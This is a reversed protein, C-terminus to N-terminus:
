EGVVSNKLMGLSDIEVETVDGPKLYVPPKLAHGIGPPTGTFVLDGPELTFIISLYSVLQAVSFIMQETSSDQMTKGNLRLRIGLKHPDPVEDRTVLTPGVPAFTDFTKGVMWQRGDKELQWDRASVDHGVSYGAVHDLARAEPIRRGAKGIVIVLEAEYDVKTSVSPVVIPGGHGILATPFKSFLVPEKPIAMGSEAAHDRYNLGVCVIKQPDPVPAHLKASAAPVSAGGPKNAAARAAAVLAPDAIIRRVSAPLGPDAAVLDVFRDGVLAAPRPGAPTNLTALRM